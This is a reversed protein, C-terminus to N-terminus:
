SRGPHRYPPAPLRPVAPAALPVRVAESLTTCGQGPAFGVRQNQRDVVTLLASLSNAGIITPSM